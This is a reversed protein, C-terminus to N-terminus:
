QGETGLGARALNVRPWPTFVLSRVDYTEAPQRSANAVAPLEERHLVLWGALTIYTDPDRSLLTHLHTLHHLSVNLVLFVCALWLLLLLLVILTDSFTLKM